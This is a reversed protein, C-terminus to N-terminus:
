EIKSGKTHSYINFIYDQNKIKRRPELLNIYVSYMLRQIFTYNDNAFFILYIQNLYIPIQM